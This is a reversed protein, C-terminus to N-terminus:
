EGSDEDLAIEAIRKLEIGTESGNSHAIYLYRGNIATRLARDTSYLYETHPAGHLTIRVNM